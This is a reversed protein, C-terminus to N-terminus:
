VEKIRVAGEVVEGERYDTLWICQSCKQTMEQILQFEEMGEIFEWGLRVIESRNKFCKEWKNEEGLQDEVGRYKM